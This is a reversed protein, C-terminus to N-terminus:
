LVFFMLHWQNCILLTIALQGIMLESCVNSTTALNWKCDFHLVRVPKKCYTKLRSPGVTFGNSSWWSSWQASCCTVTVCPIWVSLTVCIRQLSCHSFPQDASGSPVRLGLVTQVGQHFLCKGGNRDAHPFGSSKSSSFPNERRCSKQPMIHPLAILM